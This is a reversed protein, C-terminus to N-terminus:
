VVHCLFLDLLVFINVFLLVMLLVTFPLVSTLDDVHEIHLVLVELHPLRIIPDHFLEGERAVLHCDSAFNQQLPQVTGGGRGDIGIVQLIQNRVHYLGSSLNEQAVLPDELDIGM